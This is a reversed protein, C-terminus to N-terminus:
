CGEEVKSMMAGGSVGCCDCKGDKKAGWMPLERGVLAVPIGVEVM